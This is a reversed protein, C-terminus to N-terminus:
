ELNAPDVVADFLVQSLGQMETDTIRNEALLGFLVQHFQTMVRRILSDLPVPSTNALRVLFLGTEDTMEEFFVTAINCLDGHVVNFHFSNRNFQGHNESFLKMHNYLVPARSDSWLSETMVRIISTVGAAWVLSKFRPDPSMKALSVVVGCGLEPERIICATFVRVLFRYLGPVDSKGRRQDWYEYVCAMLTSFGPRGEELIAFAVEAQVGPKMGMLTNLVALRQAQQKDYKGITKMVVKM